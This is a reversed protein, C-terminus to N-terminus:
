GLAKELEPLITFLDGVLGVDASEFIPAEGDKNIAVITRADKIGTMHQIAGSIGIAFYLEPAIIKGTQGVQLDNPVYGADVAARSAGVAAGLKDALSYIIKFNDASGLARGGAVVRAASQLDPRGSTAGSRSVFRTHAPVAVGPDVKEVAASGGLQAAEFSAVRVTAVVPSGAPAEVTQIANGAYIPRKFSHTGEVAMIDSVQSVGLLAAVRPMVDKGFTTSPGFVHTYGAALRAVQPAYVAALPEKNAANEVVLVKGVGAIAAAQQAVASADAALVAVDISAGPVKAACAVCKLTSANLKAGDHEAVVLIRSSM